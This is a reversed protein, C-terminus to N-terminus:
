GIIKPHDFRSSHYPRQMYCTHCSLLPMYLTKTPFGSSLSWKSSGSTFPIIFIKLFHSTPIHIPYLQSLIPALQHSGTFATILRRTRYFVPYQKVLQFGTLKELLVRRGLILLYVQISYLQANTPTVM